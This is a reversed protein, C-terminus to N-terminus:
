QVGAAKAVEAAFDDSKKEIGEGKEWRVFRQVTIEGGAKAATEKVLAAITKSDDKVWPQELLCVEKYFKEIRGAVMKEAIEPKKGENVAQAKLIEKEHEIESAPVESKSVFRAKMSAIQLAMEQCLSKVADSGAVSDSATALEIQVGVRGDGHIYAHVRGGGEVAYRAFRRVSINEGIKAIAAKIRDGLLTNLADMDAPNQELILEAVEDCLAVFQEGKAVFDTECNVEVLVGLKAGERVKAYVRGEAAVRGAKKAAAALGKERLWDAAKDFDGGTETLAKKCDMMGAGTRARLDAVMKATIEAM